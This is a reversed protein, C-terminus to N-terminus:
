LVTENRGVGQSDRVKLLADPVQQYPLARRHTKVKPQPPLSVKTLSREPNVPILDSEVAWDLVQRVRLKIRRAADPLTWWIPRLAALVEPRGVENIPVDGIVPFIHRELTQIWNRANKDSSLQRSHEVHVLRAVEAFTLVKRRAKAEPTATTATLREKGAWPNRGDAVAVRNSDALRRAQTLTVSPFGGLGKDVRNGDVTIRQIWQKTGAKTVVLM